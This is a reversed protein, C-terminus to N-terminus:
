PLTPLSGIVLAASGPMWHSMSQNWVLAQGDTPVHGSSSTDVDTLDSISNPITPKNSLDNYDGSFGGGGGGGTTADLNIETNGSQNVTFTGKTTGGQKLTITGDGVTPITPQNTLDNYNGSFAAPVAEWAADKRGYLVGDNPVDAFGPDGQDGKEGTPGQPGAKSISVWQSSVDDVYYVYTIAHYSDFWLDGSELPRAVNTDVAPYEYPPTDSVIVKGPPGFNGIPGAPGSNTFSVWTGVSADWFYNRLDDTDNWIKGDQQHTIAAPQEDQVYSDHRAAIAEANFIHSSNVLADAQGSTQQNATITDDIKSWYKLDSANSYRESYCRVEEVAAKIVFFNNNLDEAKISHGPFFEAPLPLLDTCRYIIFEQDFVPAVNFRILTDHQFSWDANPITTWSVISTDFFAVAIDDKKFYEFTILYEKQVGNGTYADRASDCNHCLAM